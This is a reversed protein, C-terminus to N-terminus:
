RICAAYEAISSGFQAGHTDDDCDDDSAVEGDLHRRVEEPVGADIVVQRANMRGVCCHNEIYSEIIRKVRDASHSGPQWDVVQTVWLWTANWSSFPNTMKFCVTEDSTIRQMMVRQCRVVIQKLLEVRSIKLWGNECHVSFCKPKTEFTITHNAPVQPDFYIHEFLALMGRDHNFVYRLLDDSTIHDTSESGFYRLSPPSPSPSPSPPPRIQELLAACQADTYLVQVEVGWDPKDEALTIAKWLKRKLNASRLCADFRAYLQACEGSVCAEVVTKPGDSVMCTRAVSLGHDDCRAGSPATLRISFAHGTAPKGPSM